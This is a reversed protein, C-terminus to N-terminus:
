SHFSATQRSLEYGLTQTLRPNHLTASGSLRADTMGNSVHVLEDPFDLHGAYRTVSARQELTISDVTFGLISPRDDITKAITAGGVSNGWSGSTPSSDEAVGIDLGDYATLSIRAHSGLSHTLHGQVDQFHYPFTGPKYLDAVYDAYTRRAAIIWSGAGDG